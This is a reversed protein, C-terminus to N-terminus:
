GQMRVYGYGWCIHSKGSKSGRKRGELLGRFELHQFRLGDICGQVVIIIYEPITM